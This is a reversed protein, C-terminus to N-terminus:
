LAYPRWCGRGPALLRDQGTPALLAACEPTTSRRRSRPESHRELPRQSAVVPLPVGRRALRLREGAPHSGSPRARERRRNGSSACPTRPHPTPGRPPSGSQYSRGPEDHLEKQKANLPEVLHELVQRARERNHPQAAEPEAASSSLTRRHSCDTWHREIGRAM